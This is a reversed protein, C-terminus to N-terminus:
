SKLTFTNGIWCILYTIDCAYNLSMFKPIQMHDM